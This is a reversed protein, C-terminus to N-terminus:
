YSVYALDFDVRGNIGDVRGNSTCQWITYPGSYNTKRTYHALWYDYDKIESYDWYKRVASASAYLMPKYGNQKVYDLFAITNRTRQAKSLSKARSNDSNFFEEFDYAIPYTINYGKVANVVWAAEEIAEEENVATSYFYVGVKIGNKIANAINYEFKKDAKIAGQTGYERYGCRIMAFDIGAAAVKAWDIEGQWVSVDIGAAKAKKSIGELESADLKEANGYHSGVVTSKSDLSVDVLEEESLIEEDFNFVAASEGRETGSVAIIILLATVSLFVAASLAATVAIWHKKVFTGAKKIFKKM